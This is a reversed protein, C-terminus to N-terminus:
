MTNESVTKNNLEPQDQKAESSSSICTATFDICTNPVARPGRPVWSTDNVVSSGRWGKTRWRENCRTFNKSFQPVTFVVSIGLALFHAQVKALHAVSGTIKLTNRQEFSTYALHLPVIGAVLSLWDSKTDVASIFCFKKHRDKRLQAQCVPGWLSPHCSSLPANLWWPPPWEFVCLWTWLIYFPSGPAHGKKVWFIQFDAMFSIPVESTCVSVLSVLTMRAFSYPINCIVNMYM